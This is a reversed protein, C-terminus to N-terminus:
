AEDVVIYIIFNKGLESMDLDSHVESIENQQDYTDKEMTNSAIFLIWLSVLWYILELNDSETSTDFEMNWIRGLKWDWNANEKFFKNRVKRLYITEEFTINKTIHILRELKFKGKDEESLKTFWLFINKLIARKEENREKIYEEFIIIFWNQFEKTEVIKKTFIWPNDQIINIFANVEDQKYQMVVWYFGYAMMLPVQLEPMSSLLALWTPALIKDFTALSQEQLDKM